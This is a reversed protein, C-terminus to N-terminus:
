SFRGFSMVTLICARTASFTIRNRGPSVMLEDSSTETLRNMMSRSGGSGIARLQLVGKTSYSGRLIEDGQLGANDFQFFSSGATITISSIEMGSVNQLEFCIPSDLNGETQLEVSGENVPDSIATNPTEMEWWPRENAEFVIRYEKVWERLDGLEPDEVCSVLIRRNPRNSITLWRGSHAWGSIIELLTGRAAMDGKRIRLVFRVTVRKATRQESTVRSGNGGALGVSNRVIQPAGDDIGSIVIREDLEDLQIGDLAARRSLIM